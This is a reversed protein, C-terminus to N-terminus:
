LPVVSLYARVQAHGVERDISIAERTQKLSRWLFFLGIAGIVTSVLTLYFGWMAWWAMDRQAKLDQNTNKNEQYANIEAVLCAKLADAGKTTRSCRLAAEQAAANQHAYTSKSWKEYDNQVAVYKSYVSLGIWALISAAILAVIGHVVAGIILTMRKSLETPAFEFPPTKNTM